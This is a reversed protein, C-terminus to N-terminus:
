PNFDWTRLDIESKSIIADNLVFPKPIMAEDRKAIPIEDNTLLTNSAEYLVFQPTHGKTTEFNIRLTDLDTLYYTLVHHSWRKTHKNYITNNREINKVQISNAEFKKFNVTDKTYLEIRNVTRKPTIKMTYANTNASDREVIISPEPVGVPPAAKTFTYNSNYKSEFTNEQKYATPDEGLVSKTWNDLVKDYTLWNAKLTSQDFSYVLSNPKPREKSFSSQWHAKAFFFIAGILCLIGLM